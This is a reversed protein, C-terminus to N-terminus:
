QLIQHAGGRSASRGSRMEMTRVVYGIGVEQTGLGLRPLFARHDGVLPLANGISNADMGRVVTTVVEYKIYLAELLSARTADDLARPETPRRAAM